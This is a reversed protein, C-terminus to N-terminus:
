ARRQVRGGTFLTHTLGQLWNYHMKEMHKASTALSQANNLAQANERILGLLQYSAAGQLLIVLLLAGLALSIKKRM